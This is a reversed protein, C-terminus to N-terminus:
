PFCATSLIILEICLKFINSCFQCIILCKELIFYNETLM